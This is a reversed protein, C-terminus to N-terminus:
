QTEGQPSFGLGSSMTSKGYYTSLTNASNFQLEYQAMNPEESNPMRM